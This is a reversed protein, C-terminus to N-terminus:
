TVMPPLSIQTNKRRRRFMDRERELNLLLEKILNYLIIKCFLIDILDENILLYVFIRVKKKKKKEFRIMFGVM